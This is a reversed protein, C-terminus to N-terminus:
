LTTSLQLGWRTHHLSSDIQTDVIGDDQIPGELKGLVPLSCTNYEVDVTRVM